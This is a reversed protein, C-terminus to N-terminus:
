LSFLDNWKDAKIWKRGREEIKGVIGEIEEKQVNIKTLLVTVVDAKPNWREIRVLKDFYTPNTDLEALVRLASSSPRRSGLEWAEVTKGSVGVIVGFLGQTLGLKSRIARIQQPQYVPIPLVEVTNTRLKKKGASHSEAQKASQILKEGFPMDPMIIRGESWNYGVNYPLEITLDFRNSDLLYPFEFFHIEISFM